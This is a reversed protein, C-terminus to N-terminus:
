TTSTSDKEALRVKITAHWPRAPAEAFFCVSMAKSPPRSRRRIGSEDMSVLSCGKAYNVKVNTGAWKRIGQLPTVGFRNDRTWTYDGFQIQDANPGIVAISKLKGISLPLLQRENKLLVTSEDAIKKSLAIAKGSHIAGKAFKEGYPDDFLGIRFKAYLVRRVAEDVIERNLEGREILGPIAPYCDSSAEVDLGATLAQM